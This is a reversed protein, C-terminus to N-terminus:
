SENGLLGDKLYLGPRQHFALRALKVGARGPDMPFSRSSACPFPSHLSLTASGVMPHPEQQPSLHTRPDTRIAQSRGWSFWSRGLPAPLPPVSSGLIVGVQAALGPRSTDAAGAAGVLLCVPRREQPWRPTVKLRLSLPWDHLSQALSAEPKWVCKALNPEQIRVVVYAGSVRGRLSTMM